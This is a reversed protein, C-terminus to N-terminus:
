KEQNKHVIHMFSEIKYIRRNDKTLVGENLLNLRVLIINFVLQHLHSM